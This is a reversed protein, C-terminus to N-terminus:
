RGAGRRAYYEQLTILTKGSRIAEEAAGLGGRWHRLVPIRRPAALKSLDFPQWRAAHEAARKREREDGPAARLVETDLEAAAAADEEALAKALDDAPEAPAEAAPAPEPEPAKPEPAEAAPQRKGTQWYNTVRTPRRSFPDGANTTTVRAAASAAERGAADLIAVNAMVNRKNIKDMAAAGRPLVTELQADIAAIQARLAEVEETDGAQVAVELRMNLQEKELAVNRPAKGAARKAEVARAVDASTYRFAHAAALAAERTALQTRTLPRRMAAKAAQAWHDVEGDEPPANSVLSMKFAQEHVGHRLLLWRGTRRGGLGFEYSRLERGRHEGLLVAAVEALRYKPRGDPGNGTAIRVFCGPLTADFFPKDVWKELQLRPLVLRQLEAMTAPAEDEDDEDEEGAEAAEEDTASRSESAAARAEARRKADVARWRSAAERAAGKDGARRAALEQLAARKAEKDATPARGRPPAKGRQKAERARMEERLERRQKAEQRKEAREAIVLERDLENMTALRARDEDDGMYDSGYEDEESQSGDGAAAEEAEEESSPAGGGRAGGSALAMRKKLPMKAREEDEEMADDDAEEQRPLRARSAVRRIEHM